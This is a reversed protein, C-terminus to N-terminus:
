TKFPLYAFCLFYKYYNFFVFSSFHFVSRNTVRETKIYILNACVENEDVTLLVNNQKSLTEFHALSLYDEGLKEKHIEYAQLLHQHFIKM